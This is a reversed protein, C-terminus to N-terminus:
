LIFQLRILSNAKIVIVIVIIINSEEEKTYKKLLKISMKDNCHYNLSFTIM